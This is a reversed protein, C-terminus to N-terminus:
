LPSLPRSILGATDAISDALILRSGARFSLRKAFFEDALIREMRHGLAAKLQRFTATFVRRASSGFPTM